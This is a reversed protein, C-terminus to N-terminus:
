KTGVTKMTPEDIITTFVIMRENKMSGSCCAWKECLLLCIPFCSLSALIALSVAMASLICVICSSIIGSCIFICDEIIFGITKVITKMIAINLQIAPETSDNLTPNTLKGHSGM